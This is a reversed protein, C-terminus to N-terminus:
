RYFNPSTEEAKKFYFLAEEYTAPPLKGAIAQLISKQYWALDAISYYRYICMYAIM